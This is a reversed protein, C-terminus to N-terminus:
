SLMSEGLLAVYFNMLLMEIHEVILIMQMADLEEIVLSDQHAPSYCDPCLRRSTELVNMLAQQRNLEEADIM